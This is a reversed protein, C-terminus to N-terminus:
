LKRRRLLYCLNVHLPDSSCHHFINSLVEQQTSSFIMTAHDLGREEGEIRREIKYTKEIDAKSM